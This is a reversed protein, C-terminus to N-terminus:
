RTRMKCSGQGTSTRCKDPGGDKEQVSDTWFEEIHNQKERMEFSGEKKEPFNGPKILEQLDKKKM